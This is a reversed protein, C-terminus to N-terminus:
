MEHPPQPGAVARNRPHPQLWAGDDDNNNNHGLGVTPGKGKIIEKQGSFFLCSFILDKRPNACGFETGAQVSRM